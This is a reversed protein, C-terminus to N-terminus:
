MKNQTLYIDSFIQNIQRLIELNYNINISRKQHELVYPVKCYGMIPTGMIDYMCDADFRRYYEVELELRKYKDQFVNLLEICDSLTETQATCFLVKFFEIMYDNHLYLLSDKIGKVDLLEENTVASYYYYLEKKNRKGIKFFSTYINKNVFEINGFNTVQLQKDIIFVADNKISLVEHDQINNAKFLKEKYEIVGQELITQIEPKSLIMKGIFVQRFERPANYLELYQQKDIIKKDFLISINSKKMDYERIFRSILHNYLPNSYNKKSYLEDM